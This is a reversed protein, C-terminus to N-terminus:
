HYNGSEIITVLQLNRLVFFNKLIPGTLKFIKFHIPNLFKQKEGVSQRFYPSIFDAFSRVIYKRDYSPAVVSLM